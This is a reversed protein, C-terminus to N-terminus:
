GLIHTHTVKCCRSPVSHGGAHAHGTKLVGDGGRWGDRGDGGDRKVSVKTPNKADDGAVGGGAVDSGRSKHWCDRSYIEQETLRPPHGPRSATHHHRASGRWWRM